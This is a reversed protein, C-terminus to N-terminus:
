VNKGLSYFVIDELYVCTPSKISDRKIGIRLFLVDAKELNTNYVRGNYDIYSYEEDEFVIDVIGSLIFAFGSYMFIFNEDMVTIIRKIIRTDLISQLNGM